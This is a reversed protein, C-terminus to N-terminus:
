AMRSYQQYLERFPRHARHRWDFQQRTGDGSAYKAARAADNAARGPQCLHKLAFRREVLARSRARLHRTWSVNPQYGTALVQPQDSKRSTNKDQGQSQIVRFPVASVDAPGARDFRDM